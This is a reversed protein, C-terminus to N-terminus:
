SVSVKTAARRGSTERKPISANSDFSNGLPEDESDSGKKQFYICFWIIM